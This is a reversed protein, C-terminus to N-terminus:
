CCWPCSSRLTRIDRGGMACTGTVGLPNPYSPLQILNLYAPLGGLGTFGRGSKEEDYQFPLAGQRM